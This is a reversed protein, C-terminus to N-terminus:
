ERNFVCINSNLRERWDIGSINQFGMPPTLHLTHEDISLQTTPDWSMGVLITLTFIVQSSKLRCFVFIFSPTCTTIVSGTKGTTTDPHLLQFIFFASCLLVSAKSSHHQLLSKLTGQVALLDLWGM